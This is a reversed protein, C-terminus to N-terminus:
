LNRRTATNVLIHGGSGLNYPQRMRLTSAETSFNLKVFSFKRQVPEHSTRLSRVDSSKCFVPNVMKVYVM